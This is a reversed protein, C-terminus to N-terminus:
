IHHFNQHKLQEISGGVMRAAAANASVCGGSLKYTFIGIPSSNVMRETFVILPIQHVCTLVHKLSDLGQSESQPLGLVVAQVDHNAALYDLGKELRDVCEWQFRNTSSVLVLQENLWCADDPNEEFILVKIPQTM